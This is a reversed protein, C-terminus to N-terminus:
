DKSADSNQDATQDKQANSVQNTKQHATKNEQTDAISHQDKQADAVQDAHGHTNSHQDARAHSDRAAHANTHTATAHTDANKPRLSNENRHTRKEQAQFPDLLQDAALCDPVPAFGDFHFNHSVYDIVCVM